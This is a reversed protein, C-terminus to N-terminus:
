GVKGSAGRQVAAAEAARHRGVYHAVADLFPQEGGTVKSLLVSRTTGTTTSVDLYRKFMRENVALTAVEGFPVADDWDPARLGRFDLAIEADGYGFRVAPFHRVVLAEEEPTAPAYRCALTMEHVQAFDAEYEGWLRAEIAEVGTIADLWGEKPAATIIDAYQSEPVRAGVREIRALMPPHTDFPHPTAAHQMVRAFGDGTVFARFGEAIRAAISLQDHKKDADFLTHEVVTRYRAYAAIKLLARALAHGSVTRAAIADAAYERERETRLLALDFASFYAQMFYYVPIGTERLAALYRVSAALRPGMRRTFATDGGVFHGMEHALVADAEERDLLRLLPLSVFLSRGEVRGDSTTLGAETVFFNDDIGALLNVPAETGLRTCLERIRAFLPAADSEAVRVAAVGSPAPPSVFIAKLVHWAAYAAFLAVVLILKVVYVHLFFATLWYSLWVALVGQVITQVAAFVQMSRWGLVFAGYQARASAHALLALAAGFLTMFLGLALAWAGARRALLFPKIEVCVQDIQTLYGALEPDTSGCAASPPNRALFSILGDRQAPSLTGNLDVRFRNASVFQEDFTGLAHHSFGLAILPLLFVMVIPLLQARLVTLATLPKPPTM